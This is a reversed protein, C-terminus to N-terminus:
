VPGLAEQDVLFCELHQILKLQGFPAPLDEPWHQGM